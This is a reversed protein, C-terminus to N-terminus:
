LLGCAQASTDLASIEPANDPLNYKISVDGFSLLTGSILIPEETPVYIAPWQLHEVCHKEGAEIDLRGISVAGLADISLNHEDMALRLPQETTCIAIGRADTALESFRIMNIVDDDNDVFADPALKLNEPTLHLGVESDRPPRQAKQKKRDKKGTFKSEAREAIHQNLEAATVWQFPRGNSQGAQKLSKWPNKSHIAAHLTDIGLRHVAAKIRADLQDHQVGRSPLFGRLWTHVADEQASNPGCGERLHRQKRILQQHWLMVTLEDVQSWKGTAIGLHALATTGCHTGGTQPIHRCQEEHVHDCDAALAIQAIFHSVQSHVVGMLGDFIKAKLTNGEKKVNIYLWHKFDLMLIHLPEELSPLEAKMVHTAGLRMQQLASVFRPVWLRNAPIGMNDLIKYAETQMSLDDLGDAYGLVAVDPEIPQIQPGYGVLENPAILIHDTKIYDNPALSYPGVHVVMLKQQFTLRRHATVLELATTLRNIVVQYSIEETADFVNLIGNLLSPLIPWRVRHSHLIMRLFRRLLQAPTPQSAHHIWPVEIKNICLHEFFQALVWLSQVASAIQGLQSLMARSQGNYKLTGPMGVMLAIEMPHPHRLTNQSHSSLVLNGHLGKSILTREAFPGRCLCPCSYLQSGLSHLVTPAKGDLNFLRYNDGYREDTFYGLEYDTLKLEEEDQPEWAPWTPIIQGIKQYDELWPLDRLAPLPLSTPVMLAWWRTRFSPWSHHLHLVVPCWHMNRLKAYHNLADKVEPCSGASSVCELLIWPVGLAISLDLIRYFTDARRDKFQLEQGLRSFPQCPFGGLMGANEGDLGVHFANPM